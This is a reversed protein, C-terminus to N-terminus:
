QAISLQDLSVWDWVGYIRIQRSNAPIYVNTWGIANDRYCPLLFNRNLSSKWLRLVSPDAFLSNDGDITTKVRGRFRLCGGRYAYAAHGAVTCGKGTKIDQWGTQWTQVPESSSSGDGALAPCIEIAFHDDGFPGMIFRELFDGGSRATKSRVVLTDQGLQAVDVIENAPNRNKVHFAGDTGVLASLGTFAGNTKKGVQVGESTMQICPELAAVRDQANQAKGAAQNATTNVSSVKSDTETKTYFKAEWSSNNQTIKSGIEQTVGSKTAYTSSVSSTIDNKAATIDSKTAIGSGDSGKYSQVVGLAVTKATQDVYSRTSTTEYALNQMTGSTPETDSQSPAANPYPTWAKYSGQLTYRGNWYGWPLWAWVDCHRSDLAMVKVKVDDANLIRQVTVGFAASASPAGQSADKIFIEFETNQDPRANWGNGSYVHILVSSADGNSELYGLKVWKAKGSAGQFDFSRVASKRLADTDSLPTYTQSVNSKFGTLSQEVSSARALANSATSSVQTLTAKNSDATAKVANLTQVTSDVTKATESLRASLGSATQEVSSAKDMAGSATKAVESVQSKISDATQTLSSNTAYDGEPQLGTVDALVVNAVYWQTSATTPSQEIQFFVVGASKGAPCTFDWECSLWGDGLNSTSSPSVYTDYAHGGTQATYWIGARLPLEGKVQKCTATMRYRSGPVVPFATKVDAFHDRVTLACVNAGNPAKVDAALSGILPKDKDFTPNIWLNAGRGYSENVTTKFGDLSAEVTTAKNLAGSATNAASSIGASLSDSTAKLSTQTAYTADAQAKTQYNKTLTASISDATQQAKSAASVAGDATGKVSDISSSLSESTASLEAKTSYKLDADKTSTYDKSLTAKVGDATAQATNAASVAGEATKATETIKASLSDSTASLEAKTSYRGDAQATTQYDKSLTANLGDATQEVSTAKSLAENATAMNQGVTSSLGTVTQKLETVSKVTADGQTIAGELKTGFEDLRTQQGNLTGTIDTIQGAMKDGKDSLGSVKADLATISKDLDGKDADAKAAASAADARAQEAKADVDSVNSKVKDVETQLDSRVQDAKAAAADAKAQADQAAKDIDSTDVLPLQNGAQDVRNVGDTAGSGALIGNGDGTDIWVDGSRRTLLGNAIELADLSTGFLLDIGSPNIEGHTAM